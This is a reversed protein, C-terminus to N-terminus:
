RGVEANWPLTSMIVQLGGYMGNDTLGVSERETVLYSGESASKTGEM